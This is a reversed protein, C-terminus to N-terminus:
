GGPGFSVVAVQEKKLKAAKAKNIRRLNDEEESSGFLYTALIIIILVVIAALLIFVWTKVGGKDTEDSELSTPDTGNGSTATTNSNTSTNTNTNQRSLMPTAKNLFNALEAGQLVKRLSL